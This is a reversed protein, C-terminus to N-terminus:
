GRPVRAIARVLSGSVPCRRGTRGRRRRSSAARGRVAVGHEARHGGPQINDVLDGGGADCGTSLGSSPAGAAGILMRRTATVSFFAQGHGVVLGGGARRDGRRGREGGPHVRARDGRGRRHAVRLRRPESPDVVLAVDEDRDAVLLALDPGVGAGRGLLGQLVERALVVLERGRGVQELGRRPLGSTEALSTASPRAVSLSCTSVVPTTPSMGASSAVTSRTSAPRAALRVWSASCRAAARASAASCRSAITASASAIAAWGGPEVWHFVLPSRIRARSSSHFCCWRVPALSSLVM